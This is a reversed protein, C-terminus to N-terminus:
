NQLQCAAATLQAAIRFEIARKIWEACHHKVEEPQNQFYHEVVIRAITAPGEAYVPFAGSGREEVLSLFKDLLADLSAPESM